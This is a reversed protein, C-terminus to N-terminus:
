YDKLLRDIYDHEARSRDREGSRKRLEDLVDRSRQQDGQEPIRVSSDDLSGQGEKRGFPDRGQKGGNGQDEDATGSGQGSKSLQEGMAQMGERLKQLASSQAPMAGKYDKRTLPGEANGMAQGSQKLSDPISAGLDQLRKEAGELGKRINQQEQSEVNGGADPKGGGSQGTRSNLSQQRDALNRLDKMAQWAKMTQTTPAAMQLNRMIGEMQSLMDEAGQRDGKGAMGQMRDMMDDLDSQTMMNRAVEPPIEPIKEGRALRDMMDRQMEAIHRDMAQQLARSLRAIESQPAGNQLAQRLARAADAVAQKSAASKGDELRVASQWLLSELDPMQALTADKFLRMSGVRLALFVGADGNMLDPRGSLTAITSAVDIRNAVPDLILRKRQAIIIQSVPNGFQREPLVLDKTTTSTALGSLGTATLTISVPFGAWPNSTLDEPVANKVSKPHSDFDPLTLLKVVADPKDLATGAPMMTHRLAPSLEIRATLTALGYQDAATYDLSVEKDKTAAPPKSWQIAPPVNEIMSVRWHGLTRWGQTVKLDGSARLPATAEFDHKDVAAFKQRAGNAILHPRASGGGVRAQVISGQPEEIAEDADDRHLIVPEVGTYAPPTIWVDLAIDRAPVSGLIRPSLAADLKDLFHGPSVVCAIVFLILALSRWAMTDHEALSARPGRLRMGRLADRNRSQHLSWLAAQVDGGAIPVDRLADLPRHALGSDAELRRLAADRTERPHTLFAQRISGAILVAFCVIVAAQLWSPLLPLIDMQSLALFVLALSAPAWALRTCRELALVIHGGAVRINHVNLHGAM